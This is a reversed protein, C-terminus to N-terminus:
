KRKFAIIFYLVTIIGAIGSFLFTYLPGLTFWILGALSSSILSFISAFSTYFGIATATEEKKSINTILAKSIGETSAAYVGYIGFLLLILYFNNAFAFFLYVVTFMIYGAILVNRLGLKDALYGAPYSFLAYVLNYYIYFAIMSSDSYGFHKLGLLLFVDSSNILAFAFLGTILIKYERNAKKWYSFYSFFKIAAVKTNDDNKDTQHKRDKILLSLLLAVLGPLFAILFLTKYNQPYFYLYILALAPGVAAGLTDMARHFGFVKAKNEISSEDSLMADRAGTRIGKGLRDLTRAFFVWVPYTFAVILPKSLASLGYGSIIFPARKRQKDSLNGFYGKSLGATAEAIGELIGIFLVSFGISKLYVPMVPYLM